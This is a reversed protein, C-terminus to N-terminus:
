ISLNDYFYFRSKYVLRLDNFDKHYFQSTAM